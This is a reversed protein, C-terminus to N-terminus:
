EWINIISKISPSDPSLDLREECEAKAEPDVKKASSRLDRSEENPNRTHM